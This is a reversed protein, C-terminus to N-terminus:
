TSDGLHDEHCAENYERQNEDEIFKIGDEVKWTKLWKRTLDYLRTLYEITVKESSFGEKKKIDNLTSM